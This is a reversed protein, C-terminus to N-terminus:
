KRMSRRVKINQKIIINTIILKKILNRDTEEQWMKIAELNSLKGNTVTSIM